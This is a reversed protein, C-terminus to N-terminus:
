RNDENRQKLYDDLSISPRTSRPPPSPSSPKVEVRGISVRITPSSDPESTESSGSRIAAQPPPLVEPNEESRIVSEQDQSRHTDPYAMGQEGQMSVLPTVDRIISRHREPAHDPTQPSTSATDTSNAEGPYAPRASRRSEQGPTRPISQPASGRESTQLSSAEPEVTKDKPVRAARPSPSTTPTPSRPPPPEEPNAMGQEGQTSVLPTVDRIISRHREPALDPTQPSSRATDARNAEYPYTPIASRRDEQSPTRPIPQPASVPESRQLSSAGPEVTEDKMVRAARPSPSTTPTPSRPASAEAPTELPGTGPEHQTVLLHSRQAEDANSPSVLSDVSPSDMDNINGPPNPESERQLLRVDPLLPPVSAPATDKGTMSADVADLLNDPLRASDPTAPLNSPVPRSRAQPLAPPSRLEQQPLPFSGDQADGPSDSSANPHPPRTHPSESIEHAASTQVPGESPANEAPLDPFDVQHSLPEAFISPRENQMPTDSWLSGQEVESLSRATFPSDAGFSDDRWEPPNPEFRSGPWPKVVGILGLTQAALRTFFDVM